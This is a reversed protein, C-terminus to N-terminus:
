ILVRRAHLTEMQKWASKMVARSAKERMEANSRLELKQKIREQYTEITKASVGLEAAMESISAGKGSLFFVERERDTLRDVKSGGARITNNAFNEFVVDKLGESVYRRGSCIKELAQLLELHGDFIRLYGLAGAHLARQVSTADEHAALMLIAAKKDMKRFDKILQIGDGGRLTPGIIAVRPRHQEFLQRATPADNTEACLEFGESEGILSATAQCVFGIYHALLVKLKTLSGQQLRTLAKHPANDPISPGKKLSRESRPSSAM